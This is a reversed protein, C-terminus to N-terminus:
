PVQLRYPALLADFSFQVQGIVAATVEPVRHEYMQSVLLLTAQKLPGPVASAAGYGAVYRVRVSLAEFNTAPWNAVRKLVVRAPPYGDVIYSSAPFTQEVGAPDDYKVSTVSQVDGKPLQIERPCTVSWVPFGDLSLEWTQTVLARWTALEVYQRATSILATVTTDDLAHELRLQAKAEALTVPEEAPPTILRLGM